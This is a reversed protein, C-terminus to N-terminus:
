KWNKFGYGLPKYDYGSTGPIWGGFGFMGKQYGTLISSGAGIMGSALNSYGMSKSASAGQLYKNSQMQSEWLSTEGGTRMKWAEYNANQIAMRADREGQAFTDAVVAGPTGELTVGSKGYLAREQGMVKQTKERLLAAEYKGKGEAYLAASEAIQRNREGMQRAYAAQQKYARSQASGQQAAMVGGALAAAASVGMAIATFAAM